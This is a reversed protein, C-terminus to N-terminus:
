VGSLVVCQRLRVGQAERIVIPILMQIRMFLVEFRHIEIDAMTPACRSFTLGAARGPELRAFRIGMEMGMGGRPANWILFLGPRPAIDHWAFCSIGLPSRRPNWNPEM